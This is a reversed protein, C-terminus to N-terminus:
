LYTQSTDGIGGNFHVTEKGFGVTDDDELDAVDWREREEAGGRECLPMGPILKQAGLFSGGDGGRRCAFFCFGTAPACTLISGPVMLNSGPLTLILGPVTLDSGVEGSGESDHRAFYAM